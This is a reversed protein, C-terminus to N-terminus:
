WLSLGPLEASARKWLPERVDAPLDYFCVWTDSGPRRAFYLRGICQYEEPLDPDLGYPDLIQGWSFDIEAPDPDIQKAEAKRVALWEDKSQNEDM